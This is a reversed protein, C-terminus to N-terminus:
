IVMSSCASVQLDYTKGREVMLTQLKSKPIVVLYAGPTVDAEITITSAQRKAMGTDSVETLTIQLTETNM